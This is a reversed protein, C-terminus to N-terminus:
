RSRRLSDRIGNNRTESQCSSTGLRISGIVLLANVNTDFEPAM